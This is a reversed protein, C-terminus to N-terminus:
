RRWSSTPVGYQMVTSKSERSSWATVIRSRSEIVCSRTAIAWTRPQSASRSTPQQRWTSAELDSFERALHPRDESSTATGTLPGAQPHSPGAPGPDASLVPGRGSARHPVGTAM